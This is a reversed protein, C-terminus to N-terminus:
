RNPLREEVQFGSVFNDFGKLEPMGGSWYGNEDRRVIAGSGTDIYGKQVFKLGQNGLATVIKTEIRPDLWNSTPDPQMMENFPFTGFRPSWTSSQPDFGYDIANVLFQFGAEVLSSNFTGMAMALNGNRFGLQLAFPSIVREGPRTNFPLKGANTLPVGQVFIGDGWPLSEITNTGTIVNGEEDAVIVHFSHTGIGGDPKPIQSKVKEWLKRTYEEALKSAILVNDDLVRTDTLWSEQWMTRAIRVLLGLDDAKKSYHMTHDLKTHELTKLAVLQWPGGFARGSSSHLEYGRYSSKHPALWRVQYAKLDDFSALGGAASVERVFADAWHGRYMYASGEKSLGDLFGAVEPLQLRDGVTLPEHSKFFTKRGYETRKLTNAYTRIITSYADSVLFGQRALVRAPQVVRSFSLKGFKRSIEELGAIAGPVLVAKGDPEGPKWQGDPATVMNFSADLYTTTKTNAHYVLAALPGAASTVGPAVIYEVLTAAVFADFANGGARLMDLAAVRAQPNYSAVLAHYKQPESPQHAAVVTACIVKLSLISNLIKM